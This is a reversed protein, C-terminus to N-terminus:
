LVLEHLMNGLKSQCERLYKFSPMLKAYKTVNEINPSTIDQVEHIKEIRKFDPWLGAGVAAVAAAGLAGAGEGINTKVINMNYIDAFMQRWLKSKSGGGVIVMDTSLNCFKKLVELVAALNMCIGEMSSRIVDAQTHGLELGSFAGKILSSQEQSSGGALSPNFLLKNSGVPSQSALETMLEYVDTGSQEAEIALNKCIHDKVWKFSNGASFISVASTFMGPIVHTFVFPKFDVDFVPKESSVAIWSSTGLSTYVRGESINGAGLAMCSNDVGGCIVQVKQNLGLAEASEKTLQGIVETSPVIDPLIEPNIGSADVFEPSYDWKMLDFAGCGSAYSYDTNIRGTMKLNIFDKTGIVKYIKKYLDQENDRYWMIKFISYLEPPFGNGTKLYWYEQDVKKFFKKMQGTSRVDSWIPTEERLLNLNKDIPVVGLSHGSIALCVIDNIDIKVKSLLQRTSAIVSKWWDMPKQEHWGPEPYQTNYPVFTSALCIGDSDYISAKNGGTGLDYSIIKKTTIM